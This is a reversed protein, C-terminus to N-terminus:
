NLLNQLRNYVERRHDILPIYIIKEQKSPSFIVRYKDVKIRYLNKYKKLKKIDLFAYKETVLDDIHSICKEKDIKNLNALFKESKKHVIIKYSKYPSM